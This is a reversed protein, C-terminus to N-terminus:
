RNPHYIQVEPQIKRDLDCMTHDHVESFAVGKRPLLGVYM